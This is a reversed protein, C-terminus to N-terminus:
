NPSQLNTNNWREVNARCLKGSFAIGYKIISKCGYTKLSTYYEKSDIQRIAEDAMSQLQNLVSNKDATVSNTQRVAKLEIIIGPNNCDLPKLMIDYRGYGSERNSSLEYYNCFTASMGLILGHYFSEQAVDCNSVTNIMFNQLEQELKTSDGSLLAQQVSISFSMPIITDLKALIEKEYAVYIERNPICVQCYSKGDFLPKTSKVTLYGAMLLFSFISGPNKQVEPYVVATDIYVEVTKGNLLERMSDIIDTSANQIIEGIIENNGTAQWFARPICGSDVYNVISWPNFIRNEGFNYGNYWKLAENFKDDYGYFELMEKVEDYTFGFYESYRSELVSNVNLNNLGSFISEKAVRLVGTLFAMTMDNNDKLGGSLFNRMFATVDEYYGHMYGQQIPTDYEDILIMPANSHHANLFHSLRALTTSFLADELTGDIVARYYKVDDDSMSHSEILYLHRRYETRVVEKINAFTDKWNNYKVDKFTLYIVPYKGQEKRYEEGAEWVRTGEFYLSTDEDSLEFFVKLMDMNLSKGFRRPRTFLSVLPKYDILDRILLTKDVYYYNTVAKRYDSVGIPLAKKKLIRSKKIDKEKRPNKRRSYVYDDPIMWRFGDYYAGSIAGNKCLANVTRKTIGYKIAVERSTMYGM